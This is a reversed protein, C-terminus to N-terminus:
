KAGGIAAAADTADKAAAATDSSALGAKLTAVAATLKAKQADSGDPIAGNGQSGCPNGPTADFGSGKPGVLCNLAHQLHMHIGDIAPAKAALGAHTQATAIEQAADAFAATPLLLAAVSTAILFKKM